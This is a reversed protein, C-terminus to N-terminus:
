PESSSQEVQQLRALLEPPLSARCGADILGVSLMDAIHVRDIDRFSTLKMRVLAPLNLVLYGEPDRVAEEVSPSPITYSPRIKEGAWVLHVGSKKSPEDPDIFLVLDRLDERAFGLATISASVRTADSRRVLIDVDKTARTAGQDVRGVWSAVANGGVVAYKIGAADLAATVKRLRQQVREVAMLHSLIGMRV